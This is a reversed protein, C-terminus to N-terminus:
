RRRGPAPRRRGRPAPRRATSRRASSSRPRSRDASSRRRPRTTPGRPSGRRSRRRTTRLSTASRAARARPGVLRPHQRLHRLARRLGAGPRDPRGRGDARLRRPVALDLATAREDARAPLVRDPVLRRRPRLPRRLPEDPGRRGGQRRRLLHGAASPPRRHREGDAPRPRAASRTTPARTSSGASATSSWRTSCRRPPSAHSTLSDPLSRSAPHGALHVVRTSASPAAFVAAVADADACDGTHWPLATGDPAPVRDFGVVEHGRDALGVTVVQGIAGAAGTVLVRM